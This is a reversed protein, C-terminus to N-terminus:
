ASCARTFCFALNERFAPYSLRRDNRQCVKFLAEAATYADGNPSVNEMARLIYMGQKDESCYLEM